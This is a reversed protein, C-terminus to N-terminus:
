VLKGHSIAVNLDDINGSKQFKEYSLEGLQILTLARSLGSGSAFTELQENILLVAEERDIDKGRARYRMQLRSVLNVLTEDYHNSSKPALRILEQGCAIADDLDQPQHSDAYRHAQATGLARLSRIYSDPDVQLVDPRSAEERASIACQVAEDLARASRTVEYESVKM